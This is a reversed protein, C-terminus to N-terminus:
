PVAVMAPPLPSPESSTLVSLVDAHGNKYMRRFIEFCLLVDYMGRHLQEELLPLGYFRATESLTPWKWSKHKESFEAKVVDANSRMTCFTKPPTFYCFKQDFTINHSVLLETWRALGKWDLDQGFFKPYRGQQRRKSIEAETLGNIQLATENYPEQPFYFRDFPRGLFFAGGTFLVPLASASLVSCDKVGNTEFDVFLINM